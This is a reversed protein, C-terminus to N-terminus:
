PTPALTLADLVAALARLTAPDDCPRLRVTRAAHDVHVPAAQEPDDALEFGAAQVRALLGARLRQAPTGEGSAPTPQTPPRQAPAAPAAAPEDEYLSDPWDVGPGPEPEPQPENEDALQDVSFVAMMRFRNRPESGSDAPTAEATEPADDAGTYGVIRLGREGRRVARGLERWQRYTAVDRLSLGREEAQQVLLVQNRVSYGRVRPGIAPDDTALRALIPSAPNDMEANAAAILATIEDRYQEREAENRTPRRRRTTTTPM